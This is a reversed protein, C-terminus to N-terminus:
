GPLAPICAPSPHLCRQEPLVQTVMQDGDGCAGGLLWAGARRGTGRSVELWGTGVRGREEEAKERERKRRLEKEEEETFLKGNRWMRSWLAGKSKKQDEARKKCQEGGEEVFTCFREPQM